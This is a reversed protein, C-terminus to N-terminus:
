LVTPLATCGGVSSVDWDSALLVLRPFSQAAKLKEVLPLRRALRV